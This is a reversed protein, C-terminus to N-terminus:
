VAMKYGSYIFYNKLVGALLISFTFGGALAYGYWLEASDDKLYSVLFFLSFSYGASLSEAVTFTM